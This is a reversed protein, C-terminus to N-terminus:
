VWAAFSWAKIVVCEPEAVQTHWQAFADGALWRQLGEATDFTARLALDWSRASPEDGPLGLWLNPTDAELAHRTDTALNAAKSPDHCKFLIHREFM